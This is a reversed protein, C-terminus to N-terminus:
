FWALESVNIDFYEKYDKKVYVCLNLFCIDLGNKTFKKENCFFHNIYKIRNIYGRARKLRWECRMAEKKCTFGDVICIPEWYGKNNTTYKAGGSLYGNHQKWRKLFDNTYGIYTKNNNKLVYVLFM